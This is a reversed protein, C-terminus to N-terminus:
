SGTTGETDQAFMDGHHERGAEDTRVTLHNLVGRVGETEWADDWAYRAELFDDVEGQLTVVGDSVSVDIRDARLWSDQFLRRRVEDQIEDDGAPGGEDVVEYRGPQEWREQHYTPPRDYEPHRLYEREPIFPERAFDEGYRAVRVVRESIAGRDYGRSYPGEYPAGYREPYWPRGVYPREGEGAGRGGYYMGERRSGPYGGYEPYDGGYIRRDYAGPGLEARDRGERWGRRTGTGGFRGQGGYSGGWGGAPWGRGRTDVGFEDYETYEVYEEGRGWIRPRRMGYGRDYNRDYRAM